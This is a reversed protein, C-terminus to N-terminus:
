IGEGVTYYLTSGTAPAIVSMTKTGPSLTFIETQGAPVPIGNSSSVDTQSLEGPLFYVLQTGVNCIRVQFTGMSPSFAVTQPSTTVVVYQTQALPRFARLQTSM